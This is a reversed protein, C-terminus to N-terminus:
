ASVEMDGDTATWRVGSPWAWTGGIVWGVEYSITWNPFCVHLERREAPLQRVPFSEIHEGHDGIPYRKRQDPIKAVLRHYVRGPALVSFSVAPKRIRGATPVKV